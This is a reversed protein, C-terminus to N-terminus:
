NNRSITFIPYSQKFGLSYSGVSKFSYEDFRKVIEFLDGGIVGRNKPSLRNIKTCMNVPPGIMDLNSSNSTKMILIQGYDASIRYDIRPLGESHLKSCIYDNAETMALMCELSSMFGFKNNSNKSEPFYFLLCDGINKIVRGGFRNVIKAMSNLFIQYYRSARANGISASIKTSDIMDVIGVCYNESKSSFAVLYDSNTMEPSKSNGEVVKAKNLLDMKDNFSEFASIEPYDFFDEENIRLYSIDHKM